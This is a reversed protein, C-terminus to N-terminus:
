KKTKGNNLNLCASVYVNKSKVLLIKGFFDLACSYNCPLYFKARGGKKVIEDLM